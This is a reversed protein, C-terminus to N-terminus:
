LERSARGVRSISNFNSHRITTVFGKGVEVVHGDLKGRRVGGECGVARRSPPNLMLSHTSQQSCDLRKSCDRERASLPLRAENRLVVRSPLHAWTVRGPGGSRSEISRSRLSGAGSDYSEVGEAHVTTGQNLLFSGLAIAGSYWGWSEVETMWDSVAAAAGGSVMGVDPVAM